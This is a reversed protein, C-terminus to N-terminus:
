DPLGPYPEDLGGLLPPPHDVRGVEDGEQVTLPEMERKTRTSLEM